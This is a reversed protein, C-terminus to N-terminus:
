NRDKSSPGQIDTRLSQTIDIQHIYKDNYCVNYYQPTTLPHATPPSRKAFHIVYIVFVPRGTRGTPM